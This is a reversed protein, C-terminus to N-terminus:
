HTPCNGKRYAKRIDSYCEFLESGVEKAKEILDHLAWLSNGKIHEAWREFDDASVMNALADAQSLLKNLEEELDLARDLSNGATKHLSEDLYISNVHMNM